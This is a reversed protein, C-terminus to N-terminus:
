FYDLITKFDEFQYGLVHTVKAYILNNKDHQLKQSFFLGKTLFNSQM